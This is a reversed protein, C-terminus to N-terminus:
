TRQGTGLPSYDAVIRKEDVVFISELTRLTLAQTTQKEKSFLLLKNNLGIKSLFYNSLNKFNPSHRGKFVVQEGNETTLITSANVVFKRSLTFVAGDEEISLAVSDYGASEKIPKPVASAGLAFKICEIVYSKGTNSPGAILNLGKAFFLNAPRRDEGSVEISRIIM